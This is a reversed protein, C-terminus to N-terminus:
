RALDDGHIGRPRCRAMDGHAVAANEARSREVFQLAPPRVRDVLAECAEDEHGAEDFGVAVGELAGYPAVDIAAPEIADPRVSLIPLTQAREICHNRAKGLLLLREGAGRRRQGSPPEIGDIEVVLAHRALVEVANRFVARDAHHMCAEVDEVDIGFRQLHGPHKPRADIMGAHRQASVAQRGALHLSRFRLTRDGRM